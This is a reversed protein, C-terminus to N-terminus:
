GLHFTRAFTDAILQYGDQNPHVNPVASGPPNPCMYTLACIKTVNVPLQSHTDTTFNNTEFAFSVPAIRFGYRLYSSAELLNLGNIVVVSQRAWQQNISWFGLIPDYYTMGASKTKRDAIDDSLRDLIQPLNKGVARLQTATCTLNIGTSPNVCPLVDNSGIDLTLYTVAGPHHRLFWEAAELQNRADGYKQYLGEARCVSEGLMTATSEGACGFNVLEIGPHSKDLVTGLKDVYGFGPTPTGFALSDGFALYYTTSAPTTGASAVGIPALLGLAVVVAILVIRIRHM